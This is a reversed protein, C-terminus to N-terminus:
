WSVSRCGHNMMCKKAGGTRSPLEADIGPLMSLAEVGYLRKMLHSCFTQLPIQPVLDQLIKLQITM